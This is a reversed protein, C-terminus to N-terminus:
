RSPGPAAEDPTRIVGVLRWEGGARRFRVRVPTAWAAQTNSVASVAAQVFESELAGAPAQFEPTAATQAAGIPSV